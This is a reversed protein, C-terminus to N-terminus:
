EEHSIIKDIAKPFYDMILDTCEGHQIEVIEITEVLDKSLQHYFSDQSDGLTASIFQMRELFNSLEYLATTEEKELLRVWDRCWTLYPGLDVGNLQFDIDQKVEENELKQDNFVTSLSDLSEALESFQENEKLQAEVLKYKKLCEGLLGRYFHGNKHRDIFDDIREGNQYIQDIIEQKVESSSEVDKYLTDILKIGNVLLPYYDEGVRGKQELIYEAFEEVALSGERLWKLNFVTASSKATHAGRQIQEILALNGKASELSTIDEKLALVIDNMEEVFILKLEEQDM